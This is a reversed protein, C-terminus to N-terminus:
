GMWMVRSSGGASDAAAAGAAQAGLVGRRRTAEREGRAGRRLAAAPFREVAASTNASAGGRRGSGGFSRGRNQPPTVEAGRPRRAPPLFQALRLARDGARETSDPENHPRTHAARLSTRM